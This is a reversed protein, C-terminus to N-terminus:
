RLRLTTVDVEAATGENVTLSKGYIEYLRMFAPDRWAEKEVDEWAIVNYSGPPIGEFHYAGTTDSSMSRYLDVRQRQASDPLLVVTVNSLPTDNEDRAFGRIKGANSGVVIEVEGQPISAAHLVDNTWLKLKRYGFQRAFAICEDVLKSGVGLGRASPEVLLLRLKAVTKSEKVLFICGLREAGREAIWCREREPDFSTLFKGAIEAVLGEFSVDWQYEQHYLEGHRAVVWGIDGPRHARLVVEAQPVGGLVEQIANMSSVLRGQDGESLKSLMDGVEAQSRANLKQFETRGKATLQLSHVRRDEKSNSRKLLGDREFGKLMRSLYGPDLGLDAALDAPRLGPRQALEYLVRAQTLSFRSDLLGDRLLGIQRTYFRNFRRVLETNQESIAM